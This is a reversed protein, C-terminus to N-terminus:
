DDSPAEPPFEPSAMILGTLREEVIYANGHTAEAAAYEVATLAAYQDKGVGGIPACRTGIRATGLTSHRDDSHRDDGGGTGRGWLVYRRDFAAIIPPTDIAELKIAELGSRDPLVSDTLLVADGEGDGLPDRLWRLEANRCFIRAEFTNAPLPRVDDLWDFVCTEPTYLLVRAAEWAPGAERFAAVAKDLTVPGSLRWRNLNVTM